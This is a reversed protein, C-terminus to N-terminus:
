ELLEFDNEQYTKLTKIYKNTIKSDDLNNVYETSANGRDRTIEQAIKDSIEHNLRFFKNRVIAAIKKEEINEESEEIYQEHDEKHNDEKNDKDCIIDLKNFCISNESYEIAIPENDSCWGIFKNKNKNIISININNCHYYITNEEDKVIIINKKLMCTCVVNHLINVLCNNEIIYIDDFFNYYDCFIIYQKYIVVGTPIELFLATYIEYIKKTIYDFIYFTLRNASDRYFMFIKDESYVCSQHFPLECIQKNTQKDFVIQKTYIDDISEITLIVLNKYKKNCHYIEPKIIQYTYNECEDCEHNYTHASKVELCTM